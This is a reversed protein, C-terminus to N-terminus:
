RGASQLRMFNPQTTFATSLQACTLRAAYTGLALMYLLNPATCAGVAAQLLEM